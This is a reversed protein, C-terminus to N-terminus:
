SESKLAHAINTEMWKYCSECTTRTPNNTWYLHYAGNNCAPSDSTEPTHGPARFHVIRKDVPSYNPNGRHSVGGRPNIQVNM